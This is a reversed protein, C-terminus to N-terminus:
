SGHRRREERSLARVTGGERRQAKWDGDQTSLARATTNNHLMTFRQERARSRRAKMERALGERAVQALTAALAVVMGRAKMGRALGERAVQALTAALAVVM